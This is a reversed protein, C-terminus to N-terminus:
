SNVFGALSILQVATLSHRLHTSGNENKLLPKTSLTHILRINTFSVVILLWRIQLVSYFLLCFANVPQPSAAWCWAFLLCCANYETCVRSEEQCNVMFVPGGGVGGGGGDGGRSAARNQSKGELPSLLGVQSQSKVTSLPWFDMPKWAVLPARCTLQNLLGLMTSGQWGDLVGQMDATCGDTM